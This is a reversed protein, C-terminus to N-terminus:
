QMEKVVMTACKTGDVFIGLPWGGYRLAVPDQRTLTQRLLEPAMELLKTLQGRVGGCFWRRSTLATSLPIWLLPQVKLQSMDQGLAQLGQESYDATHRHYDGYRSHRRFLFPATSIYGGGLRLVRRMEAVILQENFIHEVTNFSILNDYTADAFPMAQNLDATFTAGVEPALSVSDRRGQVKLRDVYGFRKGGGVDLTSGKLVLRASLENEFARLLTEDQIALRWWAAASLDPPASIM